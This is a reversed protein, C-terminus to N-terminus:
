RMSEIYKSWTLTDIKKDAFIFVLLDNKTFIVTQPGKISIGSFATADSVSIKDNANFQKALNEVKGTPDSKFDSPLPQQSVTIPVSALVDNFTAVKKSADYKLATAQNETTTPKITSFDPKAAVTKQGLVDTKKSDKTASNHAFLGISLVLLPIALLSVGVIYQKKYESKYGPLRKPLKPAKPLSLSIAIEQPEGSAKRAKKREKAALKEAKKALKAAAERAKRDQKIEQQKQWVGFIDDDEDDFLMPRSSQKTVPPTVPVARPKITDPHPKEGSNISRKQPGNNQARNKYRDRDM